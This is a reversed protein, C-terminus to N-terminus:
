NDGHGNQCYATWRSWIGNDGYASGIYRKGTKTDTLMYVGKVSTLASKWDQPEREIISKITKYPYNIQEYGPFIHSSYPKDLLEVVEIEHYYNEFKFSSGRNTIINKVKLRGIYDKYDACLCIDYHDSYTEKVEFIGGFLFMGQQPYFDIFSAIYQRNFRNKKGEGRWRNWGIWNDFGKIFDDLPNVTGNFKAIHMKYRDLHDIPMIQNLTIM